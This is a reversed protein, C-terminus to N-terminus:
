RATGVPNVLVRREFSSQTPNVEAKPRGSWTYGSKRLLDSARKAAERQSMVEGGEKGWKQNAPALSTQKKSGMGEQAALSYLQSALESPFLNKKRLNEFKL